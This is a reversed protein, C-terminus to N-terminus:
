VSIRDRATRFSKLVCRFIVARSPRECTLNAPRARAEKNVSASAENPGVEPVPLMQLKMTERGGFHDLAIAKM